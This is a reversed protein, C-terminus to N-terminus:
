LSARLRDLCPARTRESSGLPPAMLDRRDTAAYADPRGRSQYGSLSRLWPLALSNTRTPIGECSGRPSAAGDGSLDSRVWFLRRLVDAAQSPNLGHRYNLRATRWLKDRYRGPDGTARELENGVEAQLAEFYRVVAPDRGELENPDTWEMSTQAVYALPRSPPESGSVPRVCLWSRSGDQEGHAEAVESIWLPAALEANLPGGFRGRM